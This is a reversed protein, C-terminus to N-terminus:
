QLVQEVLVRGARDEFRLQVTDSPAVAPAVVVSRFPANPGASISERALEAGNAIVLMTAEVPRTPYFGVRWGQDAPLISLAAVQNAYQLDDIGQVPYWVERWSISEGAPLRYSDFFTPALGGHLEVYASGDDTYNESPIVDSWGLAFAKSGRAVRAPFVRVAGADYQRDYVGVFPGHASPHEFFGLYQKWNGLRSFDRGQYIPWSFPQDPQPLLPDGTSHVSMRTGPFVFRLSGSPSNGSGPALMATHWYDFELAIDRRNSLTPEISFSAEGAHLSVVITAALSREETPASLTVTVSEQNPQSVTADWASGWEYGHEIVPLSWELGGLALWGLQNGPGWPSPKVVDNQYFMRNGSAKHLVQWIRGGLEPLMTVQLYRNELVITRYTRPQPTPEEALFRERDFKKFPWGSVPDVAESQYQEYPYTSLTVSGEYHIVTDPAVTAGPAPAPTVAPLRTRAAVSQGAADAAGPEVPALAELSCGAVFMMMLAWLWVPQNRRRLAALTFMNREM